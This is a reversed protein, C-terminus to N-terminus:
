EEEVADTAKGELFRELDGVCKECLDKESYIDRNEGFFRHRITKCLIYRVPEVSIRCKKQSFQMGCRDCIKVNAM